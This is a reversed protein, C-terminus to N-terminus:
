KVGSAWISILALTSRMRHPVLQGCGFESFPLVELSDVEIVVGATQYRGGVRVQPRTWLRISVTIEGDAVGDRLERSFM